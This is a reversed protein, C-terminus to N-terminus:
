CMATLGIAGVVHLLVQAELRMPGRTTVRCSPHLHLAVAMAFCAACLPRRAGGQSLACLVVLRVTIADVHHARWDHSGGHYCLSTLVLLGVLFKLPTHRPLLLAPVLLVLSTYALAHGHDM